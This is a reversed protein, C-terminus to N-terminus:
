SEQENGSEMVHWVAENKDGIQGWQEYLERIQQDLAEIQKNLAIEREIRERELAENNTEAYQHSQRAEEFTVIKLTPIRLDDASPDEQGPNQLASTQAADEFANKANQLAALADLTRGFTEDDYADWLNNFSVTFVLNAGDTRALQDTDANMGTYNWPMAGTYWLNGNVKTVTDSHGDVASRIVTDIGCRILAANIENSYTNDPFYIARPIPLGDNELRRALGEYWSEFDSTNEYIFCSGWGDKVLRSFQELNMRYEDGPYLHSNIGLVGVIGRDRMKPYVDEFVKVNLERFLLEVTAVDRMQLAYEAEMRDRESALAERQKQLPEVEVYLQRMRQKDQQEVSRVYLFGGALIAIVIM